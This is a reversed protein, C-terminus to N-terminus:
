FANPKRLCIILLTLILAFDFTKFGTYLMIHVFLTMFIALGMAIDVAMLKINQWMWLISLIVGMIAGIIGAKLWYYSIMNHTFRVFMDGVAPSQWSAGWGHGLLTSHKTVAVFEEIRNNWGVSLTKDWGAEVMDIMFGYFPFSLGALISLYIFTQLPSKLINVGAIIICAIIVLAIPARQMMLGMAIVGCACVLLGVIRQPFIIDSSKIYWSLGMMTSFMVLPANALYLLAENDGPILSLSDGLFLPSIYRLSLLGGGIVMIFPLTQLNHNYFCLPLILLALPIFDRLIHILDIGSTLAFTTPVVMMFCLFIRHYLLTWSKYRSILAQMGGGFGVSLIMLAAICYEVWGIHDPTPNSLGTYLLIACYLFIASM